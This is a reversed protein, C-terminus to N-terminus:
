RCLYSYSTSSRNQIFSLAQSTSDVQDDHDGTPFNILENIYDYMWPADKPIFVKKNEFLPTCAALRVEKDGKPKIPKIPLMTTKRLEQILPYGNSTEEILLYTPKYKEAEILARKKLEIYDCKSRWCNLLYINTDRVGWTTIVAYDSNESPKCNTDISQITYNLAPLSTYYQGEFYAEKIINGGDITPNQQFLAAFKSPNDKREKLLKELTKRDECLPQGIARGLLDNEEAIAPLSIVDWMEKGDRKLLRGILDDHHWRTLIIIFSTNKQERSEISYEFESWVKDRMVKSRADTANKIPDDIVVLDAPTGTIGSQFGFAKIFGGQPTNWHNAHGMDGFSFKRQRLLRKIALSFETAYNLNYAGIIIRKKPFQELFYAPFHITTHLSKGHQPPM